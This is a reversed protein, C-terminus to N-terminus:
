KKVPPPPKPKKDKKKDKAKGKRGKGDVDDILSDRSGRDKPNLADIFDQNESFAALMPIFVTKDPPPELFDEETSTPLAPPQELITTEVRLLIVTEREKLFDVGYEDMNQRLNKVVGTEDSLEIVEDRELKCRKKIQHLLVENRCNINFIRREDEGYRVTVFM